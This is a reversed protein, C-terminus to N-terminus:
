DWWFTWIPADLIAAAVGPVPGDWPVVQRGPPPQVPGLRLEGDAPLGGSAM